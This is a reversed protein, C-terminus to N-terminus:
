FNGQQIDVAVIFDLGFADDFSGIVIIFNHNERGKISTEPGEPHRWDAGKVYDWWCVRRPDVPRNPQIFVTFATHAIQTLM